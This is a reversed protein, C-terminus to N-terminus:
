SQQHVDGRQAFTQEVGVLKAGKAPERKEGKETNRDEPAQPLGTQPEREQERGQEEGVKRELPKSESSGPYGLLVEFEM